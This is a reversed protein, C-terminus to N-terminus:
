FANLTLVFYRRKIVRTCKYEKDRKKIAIIMASLMGHKM